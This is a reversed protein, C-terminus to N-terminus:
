KDLLGSMKNDLHVKEVTATLQYFEDEDLDHSVYDGDPSFLTMTICSESEGATFVIRSGNKLKVTEEM